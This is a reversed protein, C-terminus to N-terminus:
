GDGDLEDVFLDRLVGLRESAEHALRLRRSEQATWVDHLDQVEAGVLAHRVDRHLEEFSFAQGSPEHAAPTKRGFACSLPM